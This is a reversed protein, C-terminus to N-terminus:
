AINRNIWIDVNQIKNAIKRFLKGVFFWFNRWYGFTIKNMFRRIKNHLKAEEAELRKQWYLERKEIDQMSESFTVKKKLKGQLKGKVFNGTFEVWWENGETDQVSEYFDISGTYNYKVTKRSKEVFKHPWVFQRKKRAKKEEEESMTRIWEGDIKSWCLNGSKTLTYTSLTCDLDKTQFARDNWDINSFIAQEKKNFPLPYNVKLTDFMGM